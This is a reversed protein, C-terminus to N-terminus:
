EGKAVAARLTVIAGFGLAGLAQNAMDADVFGLLQAGIVVLAAGAVIYTKKGKLFEM